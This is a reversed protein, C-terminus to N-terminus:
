NTGHTGHVEPPAAATGACVCPQGNCFGCPKFPNSTGFTVIPKPRGFGKDELIGIITTIQRLEDATLHDSKLMKEVKEFVKYALEEPRNM